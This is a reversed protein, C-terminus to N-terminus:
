LVVSAIPLKFLTQVLEMGYEMDIIPAHDFGVGVKTASRIILAQLAIAFLTVNIACHDGPTFNRHAFKKLYFASPHQSSRAFSTSSLWRLSLEQKSAVIPSTTM